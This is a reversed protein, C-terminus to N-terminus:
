ESACTITRADLDIGSRNAADMERQGSIPQELHGLRPWAARRRPSPLCHLKQQGIGAMQGLARQEAVPRTPETLAFPQLVDVLRSGTLKDSRGIRPLIAGGPFSCGSRRWSSLMLGTIAQQSMHLSMAGNEAHAVQHLKTSSSGAPRASDGNSKLPLTLALPQRANGIQFGNAALAIARPM